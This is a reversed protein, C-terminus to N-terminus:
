SGQILHRIPKFFQQILYIFEPLPDKYIYKLQTDRLNIPYRRNSFLNKLLTKFATTTFYYHGTRYDPYEFPIGLSFATALLPFNVGMARSGQVSSWYRANFDILVYEKRENDYRFDLNAIGTFNLKHIITENLTFFDSNKIFEIGKSYILPRFIIGRHITHFLIKGNIAFLSLDIDYGQLYEQLFYGDDGIDYGGIASKLEDSNNIQKIGEGGIGRVPKILVPYGGSWNNYIRATVAHPFDNKELWQNLNWKNGTIELTAPEPVPHIKVVKELLARNLYLLESIWEMTPIVLDANSKRVTEAVVEEFNDKNLVSIQYIKRLYRSYSFLQPKRDSCLLVDLHINRYGSFSRLLPLVFPSNNDIILINVERSFM